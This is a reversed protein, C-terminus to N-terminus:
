EMCSIFTGIFGKLADAGSTEGVALIKVMTTQIRVTDAGTLAEFFEHWLIGAEGM